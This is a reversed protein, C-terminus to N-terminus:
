LVALIHEEHVIVDTKDKVALMSGPRFLVEEGAKISQVEPGVAKVVATHDNRIQAADPILLGSKNKLSVDLVVYKGLPKM